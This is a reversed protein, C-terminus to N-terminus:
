CDPKDLTNHFPLWNRSMLLVWRTVPVREIATYGLINTHQTDRDITTYGLINTHQTDRDINTYGLTKSSHCVINGSSCVSCTLPWGCFLHKPIIPWTMINNGKELFISGLSYRNNVSSITTYGLIDTHQTNRDITTYELINTHQTDRDITAYGLINTHQTNRYSTTYGLINTHQTDRDITTYGLIFV